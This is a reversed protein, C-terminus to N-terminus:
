KADSKEKEFNNVAEMIAISTDVLMNDSVWGGYGTADIKARLVDFVIKEKHTM